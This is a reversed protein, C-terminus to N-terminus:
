VALDLHDKKSDTPQETQRCFQQPYQSYIDSHIPLFCDILKKPPKTKAKRVNRFYWVRLSICQSILWQPMNWQKSAHIATLFTVVLFDLIHSLWQCYYVYDSTLRPPLKSNYKVPVPINLSVSSRIKNKKETRLMKTCSSM